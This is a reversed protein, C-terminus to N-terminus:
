LQILLFGVDNMDFLTKVVQPKGDAMKVSATVANWMLLLDDGKDPLDSM